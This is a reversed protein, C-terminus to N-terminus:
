IRTEQHTCIRWEGDSAQSWTTHSTARWRKNDRTADVTCTVTAAMLGMIIIRVDQLEYTDFRHFPAKLARRFKKEDQFTLVEKKPWLFNAYSNSLKIIESAPEASTLATWLAREKDMVETRIRDHIDPM